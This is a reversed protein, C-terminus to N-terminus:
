RKGNQLLSYMTCPPFSILMFPEREIVMKKAEDRMKRSSFDWVKGDTRRVTLDLAFGQKLGRKGAEESIRPPSYIEALDPKLKVEPGLERFFFTTHINRCVDERPNACIKYEYDKPSSGKEVRVDELLERTDRDITLRRYVKSWELKSKHIQDEVM